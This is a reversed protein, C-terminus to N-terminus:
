ARQGALQQAPQRGMGAKEVVEVLAVVEVECRRPASAPWGPPPGPRAAPCPGTCLIQRWNQGSAILLQAASSPPWLRTRRILASRHRPARRRPPRRRDGTRSGAGTRAGDLHTRLSDAQVHWLGLLARAAIQGARLQVLNITTRPISGNATAKYLAGAIEGFEPIFLNPDPLRSTLNGLDTTVPTPM